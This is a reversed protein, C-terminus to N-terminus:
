LFIGTDSHLSGRWCWRTVFSKLSSRWVLREFIKTLVIEFAFFSFKLSMQDRLGLTRQLPNLFFSGGGKALAGPVIYKVSRVNM